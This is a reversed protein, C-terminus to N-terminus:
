RADKQGPCYARIESAVSNRFGGQSEPDPHLHRPSPQRLGSRYRSSQGIWTVGRQKGVAGGVVHYAMPPDRGKALRQGSPRTFLSLKPSELSGSLPPFETLSRFLHFRFCDM